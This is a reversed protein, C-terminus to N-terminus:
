LMEWLAKFLVIILIVDVAVIFVIGPAVVALWAMAALTNGNM